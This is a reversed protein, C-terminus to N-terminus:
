KKITFSFIAGKGPELNVKIEGGLKTIIFKVTTLGIGTGKEGFRDADEESKFLEFMLEQKDKHIGVINVKVQFHYYDQAVSFAITVQPTKNQNDKLSYGVLSLFIQFLAARNARLFFMRMPTSDHM